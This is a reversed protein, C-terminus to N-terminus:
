AKYWCVPIDPQGTRHYHVHNEGRIEIEKQKRVVNAYWISEWVCCAREKYRQYHLFEQLEM